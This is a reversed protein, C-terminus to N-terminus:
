RWRYLRCEADDALKEAVDWLVIEFFRRQNFTVVGDVTQAIALNIDKEATGSGVYGLDDGGHGADIGIRIKSTSVSPTVDENTVPANESVQPVRVEDSKKSQALNPQLVLAIFIGVCLFILARKM